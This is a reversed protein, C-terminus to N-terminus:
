RLKVAEASKFQFIFPPDEHKNVCTKVWLNRKEAEWDGNKITWALRFCGTNGLSVEL